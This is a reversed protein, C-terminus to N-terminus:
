QLYVFYISILRKLDLTNLYSYNEIFYLAWLKLQNKSNEKRQLFVLKELLKIVYYLKEKNFVSAKTCEIIIERVIKLFKISQFVNMKKNGFSLKIAKHNILKDFEKELSICLPM